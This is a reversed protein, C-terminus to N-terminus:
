AVLPSVLAWLAQIVQGLYQLDYAAQQLGLLTLILYFTHSNHYWLSWAKFTPRDRRWSLSIFLLLGERKRSRQCLSRGMGVEWPVVETGSARVVLSACLITDKWWYGQRTNWRCLKNVPKTISTVKFKTGTLMRLFRPDWDLGRHNQKPM